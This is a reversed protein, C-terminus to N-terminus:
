IHRSVYILLYELKNLNECNTKDNGSIFGNGNLQRCAAPLRMTITLFDKVTAPM